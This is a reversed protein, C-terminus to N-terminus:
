GQSEPIRSSRECLHKNMIGELLHLNVVGSAEMCGWVKVSVGVYKEPLLFNNERFEEGPKKWM